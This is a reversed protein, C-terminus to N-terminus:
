PQRRPARVCRFGIGWDRFGPLIGDRDASRLDGRSDVSGGRLVRLAGTAPGSPDAQAASPYAGYWDAVWEWVNGHMDHLGWPNPKKTRAPHSTGSGYWAHEGLLKEDDGFSWATQSGARAAYEWEAETPLRGGFHECAAKADFWSVGTAPLNAEGQHGSRFRRYQENTIETKGIWFESLTVQHAPKEDSYARPDNEASGMTFTGPCIRVWGIGAEIREEGPVCTEVVQAPPKTQTATSTVPTSSQGGLKVGWGELAERAVRANVAYTTQDDMGTVVGVVKGGQLVPGGSFSEGIGQDVLLLTGSRSSLVRQTARPALAMEPFGLLFLSEGIRPQSEVEFSLTAVGAPVGRVQFVALGHPNGADMALTRDSPFRETPDAAFAVELQQVGETVHSATVIRAKDLDLGVVFGTARVPAGGRTGSIRVLASVATDLEQSSSDQREFWHSVSPALRLGLIVAALAALALFLSRASWLFLSRASWKELRAPSRKPPSPSDTTRGFTLPEAVRKSVPRIEGLQSPEVGAKGLLFSYLAQYREESTLEYYTYGRVPEPIFREQDAALMVPVFKVTRSRADYLEHTILAGEWNAGKGRGPTEDGRFRRYYTETCVVLVFDAEDIQELTWRPWGREPTGNVYLDLRADLGDQRLREALGLVKYQHEDSDHSYSIFVVPGPMAGGTRSPKLIRSSLTGRTCVVLAHNSGVGPSSDSSLSNLAPSAPRACRFGIGGSRGDPEASDRRTSRLFGSPSFFSGRRLVRLTGTTPGRPDTQAASSYAGYWDEVWEWVNGHM